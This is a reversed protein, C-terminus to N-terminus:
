KNINQVNASNLTMGNQKAFRQLAIVSTAKNIEEKSKDNESRLAQIRGNAAQLQDDVRATTNSLLISAFMVASVCAAVVFVFVFDGLSWRGRKYTRVVPRSKVLKLTSAQKNVKRYTYSPANEAM